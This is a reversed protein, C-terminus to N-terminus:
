RVLQKIREVVLAVDDPIAGSPPAFPKGAAVALGRDILMQHFARFDRTHTIFGSHYALSALWGRLRGAISGSVPKFLWRALSRRSQDISGILSTPLSLIALPKRLRVVEVMMSISDGTVMFGDALGLLGKYPNDSAEASWQYFECGEPLRKRLQQVVDAPTRRSTTFYPTGGQSRIAAAVELLKRVVSENFVYPGTPGGVMVGILPRPLTDLRSQWKQSERAVAAEDVRMLPLTVPLVNPMPPFRNESSAVILDFQEMMGSPKGVLVIRTRGGSRERIWLAVNAPRRGVTIILDPWPPQLADSRDRDIHYLTPGVKPKGFVFEDLMQVHRLECRWGLADEITYVQGNDGKKDGLVLWVRPQDQAPDSESPLV